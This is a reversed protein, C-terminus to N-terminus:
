SMASETCNSQLSSHSNIAHYFTLEDGSEAASSIIIVDSGIEAYMGVTQFHFDPCSITLRDNRRRLGRKEQTQM